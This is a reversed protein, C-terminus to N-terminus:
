GTVQIVQHNGAQLGAFLMKELQKWASMQTYDTFSIWTYACLKLDSKSKVTWGHLAVMNEHSVM